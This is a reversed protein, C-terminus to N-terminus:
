SSSMFSFYVSLLLFFIMDFSFTLFNFFSIIYMIQKSIEFSFFFSFYKWFECVLSSQLFIVLQMEKLIEFFFFLQLFNEFLFVVSFSVKVAFYIKPFKKFNPFNLVHEFSTQQKKKSKRLLNRTNNSVFCICYRLFSM